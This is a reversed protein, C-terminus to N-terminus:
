VAAPSLLADRVSQMALEPSSLVTAQRPRMAAAARAMSAQALVVVDVEPGLERLAEEVMRDHKETDGSIVAAFAGECLRPVIQLDRGAAKAARQLLAITPELTTSLTAAVGVRSATAVAKEAMAEDIRFIPFDYVQRAVDISPGISSCTVMVADAGGEHAHGILSVVRRITTKTLEGALITARILSEDVLHFTEVGPLLEKALRSFTPVLVPSTHVFALTKTMM